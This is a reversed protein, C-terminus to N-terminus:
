CIGPCVRRGGTIRRVGPEEEDAEVDGAEDEDGGDDDDDNPDRLPISNLSEREGSSEYGARELAKVIAEAQRITV